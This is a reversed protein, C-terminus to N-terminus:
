GSTDGTSASQSNALCADRFLQMARTFFKQRHYVLHFRRKLDIGQVDLPKIKGQRVEELIAVQSVIALGLGASVAQKIAENNNYIGVVKWDAQAAHMANEFIVQTGSGTERVLFAQNSLQQVTLTPHQALPHQPSAIFVLRDESYPEQVLYPSSVPGEVLGLDLQDELLLQEILGTNDVRTFIEIEPQQKQFAAVLGPLLYAGVTLSAGVRVSGGRENGGVVKEAQESLSLIHLAYSRLQDGAATLYLRHKLREFLRAGYYRELEAIAQSVSPQAMHLQKAAQTMNMEDCVTLFIKFHRFNM